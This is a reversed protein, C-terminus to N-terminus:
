IKTSFIMANGNFDAYKKYAEQSLKLKKIDKRLELMKKNILSYLEEEYQNIQIKKDNRDIISKGECKITIKKLTQQRKELLLSIDRDGQISKIMQVTIEIYDDLLKNLEM